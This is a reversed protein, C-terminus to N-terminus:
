VEMFAVAHHCRSSGWGPTMEVDVLFEKTAGNGYELM